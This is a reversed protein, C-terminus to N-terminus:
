GILDSNLVATVSNSSLACEWEDNNKTADEKPVLMKQNELNFWDVKARGVEIPRLGCDSAVSVISPVKWSNAQDFEDPGIESKPMEFRQALYTKIRDREGRSVSHYSKVSSVALAAEYLARMEEPYFKDKTSSDSSTNLPIDHSWEPIDKDQKERFFIFLRKLSKEFMYVHSEPHTTRRVLFGILETADEPTFEKTYSGEREWLWRYAEEVKYHTTRVTAESYGQRKYTDQGEILLWELFNEKFERYDDALLASFDELQEKTAEAVLPVPFEVTETTDEELQM